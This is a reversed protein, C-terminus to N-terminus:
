CSILKTSILDANLKEMLQSAVESSIDGAALMAAISAKQERYKDLPSNKIINHVIEHMAAAAETQMKLPQEQMAQQKGELKDAREQEVLRLNMEKERLSILNKENDARKVDALCSLYATETHKKFGSSSSEKM